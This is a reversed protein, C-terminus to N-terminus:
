PHGHTVEKLPRTLVIRVGRGEDGTLSDQAAEKLECGRCREPEAVYANRDGGRTEDWEQPRTGCSGCAQRVRIHQWIAKDRDEDSWALFESHRIRYHHCVALEVTLGSDADLRKPADLGAGACEGPDGCQM